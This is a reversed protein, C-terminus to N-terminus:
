KASILAVAVGFVSRPASALVSEAGSEFDRFAAIDLSSALMGCLREQGPFKGLYGALSDTALRTLAMNGSAPGSERGFMMRYDLLGDGASRRLWAVARRLAGGEDRWGIECAKALIGAEWVTLAPDGEGSSCSWSGDPNQTAVAHGVAAAIAPTVGSGRRAADEILAFSAFAHNYIAALGTSGFAGSTDQMRELASVAKSAAAGGNSALAMAATATVAPVHAGSDGSASWTGDENQVSELWAQARAAGAAGGRPAPAALFVAVAAAAAAAAAWSLRIRRTRARRRGDERAAALTAAAFGPSPAPADALACRAGFAALLAKWEARQMEESFMTVDREM